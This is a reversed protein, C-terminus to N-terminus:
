SRKAANRSRLSLESTVASMTAASRYPLDAPIVEHASLRDLRNRALGALGTFKLLMFLLAREKFRHFLLGEFIRHYPIHQVMAAFIPLTLGPVANGATESMGAIPDDGVLSTLHVWRDMTARLEKDEPVLSNGGSHAAAYRIQEHSEYIPQGDHLLVPVTAAPNIELFARGINEYSGTEILDVHIGEYPVELEALCVRIKKSCLSFANHYLTWEKTHRLTVDPLHGPPVSHTKRHSREWLYWTALLATAVVLAALM